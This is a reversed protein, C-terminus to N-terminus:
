VRAVDLYASFDKGNKKRWKKFNRNDLKKCKKSAQPDKGLLGMLYAWRIAQGCEATGDMGWYLKFYFYM